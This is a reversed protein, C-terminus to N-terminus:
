NKPKPDTPAYRIRQPDLPLTRVQGWLEDLETYSIM